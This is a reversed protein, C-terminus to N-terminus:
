RPLVARSQEARCEAVQAETVLGARLALRELRNEDTQATKSRRSVRGSAGM